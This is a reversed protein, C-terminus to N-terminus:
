ARTATVYSIPMYIGSYTNSRPLSYQLNSVDSYITIQSGIETATPLLTFLPICILLYGNDASNQDHDIALKPVVTRWNLELEVACGPAGMASHDIDGLIDIFKATDVVDDQIIHTNAHIVHFNGNAILSNNVMVKLRLNGHWRAFRAANKYPWRGFLRSNVPISIVSTDPEVQFSDVYNWRVETTSAAGELPLIAVNTSGSVDDEVVNETSTEKGVAEQPATSGESKTDKSSVDKSDAQEEGFPTSGIMNHYELPSTNYWMVVEPTTGITAALANVQIYAKNTMLSPVTFEAPFPSSWYPQFILPGSKPDWDLAPLQLCEDLPLVDLTHKQTVRFVINTAPNSASELKLVPYKSFLLHRDKDYYSFEEEPILFDFTITGGNDAFPLSTVLSYQNDLRTTHDLTKGYVESNKKFIPDYGLDFMEEQGNEPRPTPVITLAQNSFSNYTCPMTTTMTVPSTWDPQFLAFDYDNNTGPVTNFDIFTGLGSNITGTLQQIIAPTLMLSDFGSITVNNVINTAAVVTDSTTTSPVGNAVFSTASFFIVEAPEDIANPLDATFNSVGTRTVASMSVGSAASHEFITGTDFAISYESQSTSVSYSGSILAATVPSTSVVQFSTTGGTLSSVTFHHEDPGVNASNPIPVPVFLKMDLPACYVFIQLPEPLGVETILTTRPTIILQGLQSFDTISTMYGLSSWPTIVHIENQESPNWNFGSLNNASSYPLALGNITPNFSVWYQQSQFLPPKAIIRWVLATQYFQFMNMIQKVRSSVDPTYETSNSLITKWANAFDPLAHSPAYNPIEKPIDGVVLPIASVTGEPTKATVRKRLSDPGFDFDRDIAQNIHTASTGDFLQRFKRVTSPIQKAKV